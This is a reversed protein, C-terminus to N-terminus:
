VNEGNEKEKERLLYVESELKEIKQYMQKLLPVVYIFMRDYALGEVEGDQNYQVVENLGYKDFSDALFGYYKTAKRGYEKYDQKDYYSIPIMDMFTELKDQNFTVDTIESKYKKASSSLRIYGKSSLVLTTGSGSTPGHLKVGSSNIEMMKNGSGFFRVENGDLATRTRINNKDDTYMDCSLGSYMKGPLAFRANNSSVYIGPYSKSLTDQANYRTVRFASQQPLRVEIFKNNNHFNSQEESQLSSDYSSRIELTDSSTVQTESSYCRIAFDRYSGLVADTGLYMYSKVDQEANRVSSAIKIDSARGEILSTANLYLKSCSSSTLPGDGTGNATSISTYFSGDGRSNAINNGIYTSSGGLAIKGEAISLNNKGMSRLHLAPHNYDYSTTRKNRVVGLTFSANVGANGQGIYFYQGNNIDGYKTNWWKFWEGDMHVRNQSDQYKKGTGYIEIANNVIAIKDDTAEPLSDIILSGDIKVKSSDITVGVARNIANVMSKGDTSNVKLSIEKNLAKIETSTSSELDSIQVKFENNKLELQGIKDKNNTVTGAIRDARTQLEGIEGTHSQVTTKVSQLEQKIESFEPNEAPPDFSTAVDGVEMKIKRIKFNGATFPVNSEVRMIGTKTELNSCDVTVSVREWQGTGLSSFSTVEVANSFIGDSYFMLSGTGGYEADESVMVDFSYTFKDENTKFLSTNEEYLKNVKYAMGAWAGTVTAVGGSLSIRSGNGKVQWYTSDTMLMPDKLLNQNYQVDDQKIENEIHEIKQTIKGIDLNISTLSSKIGEQRGWPAEDNGEVIQFHKFAIHSYANYNSQLKGGVNANVLPYTFSGNIGEFTVVIKYERCQSQPKFIDTTEKSDRIHEESIAVTNEGFVLELSGNNGGFLDCNTNVLFSATYQKEGSLNVKTENTFKANTLGCNSFTSSDFNSWGDIITSMSSFRDREQSMLPTPDFSEILNADGGEVTNVLNTLGMNINDAKINVEGIKDANEQAKFNINKTDQKISTIEQKINSGPKISNTEILSFDKVAVYYPRNKDSPINHRFALNILDVEELDGTFNYDICFEEAIDGPHEDEFLNYFEGKGRSAIANEQIGNYAVGDANSTTLNRFELGFSMWEQFDGEGCINTNLTLRLNYQKGPSMKTKAREEEPIITIINNGEKLNQNNAVFVSYGNKDISKQSYQNNEYATNQLSIYGYTSDVTVAGNLEKDVNDVKEQVKGITTEFQGNKLTLQSINDKNEKVQFDIKEADQKIQTMSYVGDASSERWDGLVTNQELMMGAIYMTNNIAVNGFFSNVTMDSTPTFEYSFRQFEEYNNVEFTQSFEENVGMLLVGGNEPDNVRAYASIIYPKDKKLRQGDQAVKSDQYNHDRNVIEFCDEIGPVDLLSASTISILDNIDEYSSAKHWGLNQSTAPEKFEPKGTGTLLNQANTKLGMVTNTIGDIAVKSESISDRNNTAIERISDADQKIQTMMGISPVKQGIEDYPTPTTGAELKPDKFKLFTGGTINLRKFNLLRFSKNPINTTAWVLYENAGDDDVGELTVTCDIDHHSHDYYFSLVASTLTGDTIVKVQQVYDGEYVPSMLTPTPLIEKGQCTDKYGVTYEDYREAWINGPYTILNPIKGNNPFLNGGPLIQGLESVTTEIKGNIINVQAKSPIDSFSPTWQTSKNGEAIKINEVYIENTSAPHYVNVRLCFDGSRKNWTFVTGQKTGTNEDSIVEWLNNGVMWLTVNDSEVEGHHENTFHGNSEATLTYTKGNELHITCESYEANNDINERNPSFPGKSNALLNVDAIEVNDITENVFDEVTGGSSLRINGMFNLNGDTGVYLTKTQSDKYIEFNAQGNENKLIIHPGNIDGIVLQKTITSEDFNAQLANLVGVKINQAAFELIAWDSGNYVYLVNHIYGNNNGTNYWQTGIAPNKPPTEQYLIKGDDGKQGRITILDVTYEKRGSTYTYETIRWSYRNTETPEEQQNSWHKDLWNPAPKDNTPTNQYKYAINELSDGNEGYVGSLSIVSQTSNNSYYYVDKKWLYKNIIDYNTPINLIWGDNEASPMENANTAMFYTVINDVKVSGYPSWKYENLHEKWNNADMDYDIPGNYVGIATTNASPLLTATNPHWDVEEQIPENTYRISVFASQGTPGALGQKAKTATLVLNTQSIVEGIKYEIVFEISGSLGDMSLIPGTLISNGSIKHQGIQNVGNLKTEVIRYNNEGLEQQKDLLPTLFDIGSQLTILVSTNDLSLPEGEANSPIVVAYNSLSALVPNQGDIIKTLSVSSTALTKM